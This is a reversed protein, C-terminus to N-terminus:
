KVGELTLVNQLPKETPTRGLYDNFVDNLAAATKSFTFNRVYEAAKRGKELAEDQHEYIYRMQQALHDVDSEYMHGVNQGKYRSYTAPVEGKVKVEYMVDPNFYESIGHANPVITPLGTAMAELPTMGFGEGRSPFVFADSEHLLDLMEPNDMPKNIVKINPYASPAFNFGTPIELQNTKFIMKVPEDPEFAKIFAQLVELFGKRLNFANYHLFVFDKENERKNIREKFRFTDPDYGLPIVMANIGSAAFVEACWHSPVIVLDALQLYEIWEDPIKTSEFMTYIIKFPNDLKILAQPSHFLFGIKQGKQYLSVNQGLKKLENFINKSATGYGDKKEVAVTAMYISKDLETAEPVPENALKMEAEQEKVFNEVEAENAVRFGPQTLWYEYKELDDVAVIRESPNVLHPM